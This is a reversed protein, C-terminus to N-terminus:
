VHLTILWVSQPFLYCHQEQDLHADLYANIAKNEQWPELTLPNPNLTCQNLYYELTAHDDSEIRHHFNFQIHHAPGAAQLIDKATLYPPLLHDPDYECHYLDYLKMYSSEKGPQFILCKGNSALHWKFISILDAVKALPIIYLSHIAWIVDYRDNNRKAGFDLISEKFSRNAIFPARLNKRHAELSYTSIDITDYEIPSITKDLKKALLGLFLGVGCGVDLLRIAPLISSEQSVLQQNTLSTFLATFDYNAILEDYDCRAVSFWRDEDLTGEQYFGNM